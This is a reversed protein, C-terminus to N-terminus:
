NLTVPLNKQKIVKLIKKLQANSNIQGSSSVEDPHREYFCQRADDKETTSLGRSIVGVLDGTEENFIPGGSSGAFVILSSWFYSSTNMGPQVEGETTIKAPTGLPYSISFVKMGAEATQSSALKVPDRGMVKRDLEIIAFDTRFFTKYLRGMLGLKSKVNISTVVNKCSYVQHELFNVPINGNKLLQYDFVWKFQKCMNKLDACHGATLIHRDSILTGSCESLSVQKSLPFDPCYGKQRLTQYSALHGKFYDEQLKSTHVMAATSAVLKQIHPRDDEHAEKMNFDTQGYALNWLLGIAMFVITKM